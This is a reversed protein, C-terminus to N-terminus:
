PASVDAAPAPPGAGVPAVVSDAVAAAPSSGAPLAAAGPAASESAAAFAPPERPEPVSPPPVYRARRPKRGDAVPIWGPYRVASLVRAGTEPDAGAWRLGPPMRFEGPSREGYVRSMFGRWIPVAAGAGTQDRAMPTRDDNGVWVGAVIEPTFGIFWADRNDNTSGTKGAVAEGLVAAAHGTGYWARVTERMLYTTLYADIESIRGISSPPPLEAVPLNESLVRGRADLVRLVIRPDRAQGGRALTAYAATIELLTVENTGLALGLDRGLPSRIGARRAFDIVRDVGVEDVLRITASNLSRAFAESMAVPGRFRNSYNKPRWRKDTTRDFHEYQYDYLTADPPYGAELAAGYCFPKFASGPQRRAQVARNFRSTAYDRGGVMALVDGSSVDLALLAGEPSVPQGDNEARAAAADLSETVAALAARQSDLDLTTEIRLGGRLVTEAGFQDFIQQRVEEVFYAAERYAAPPSPPPLIAPAEELATRASAASLRGSKQMLSIVTRRGAEAAEPNAHPSLRSPAKPLAAIQAAESVSLKSLPKGFYTRAAEAVGYAGSGLYIQNLYLELIEDKDLALEIRVALAIDQLKRAFSKRPSLFLNKALQQTITSGGQVIRGERFNAWAARLMSAPDFGIHWYFSDDEAALFASRVVPPIGALAVFERRQEFFTGIPRGHRDVVVSPLPLRYRGLGDVDPLSDVLATLGIGAVIGIVVAILHSVRLQPHIVRV